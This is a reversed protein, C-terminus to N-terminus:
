DTSITKTVNSSGSWIETAAIVGSPVGSRGAFALFAATTTGGSGASGM